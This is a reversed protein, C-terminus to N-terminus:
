KAVPIEITIKTGKGLSSDIWFRGGLSKTVYVAKTLGFGGGLVLKDGANSGREGFGAVREIDDPPIGRGTDQINLKLLQGDNELVAGIRGGPDTYKRSNAILDRVVDQFVLPMYIVNGGASKIEFDVAYDESHQEALNLVIGYNGKSNKEIAAFMSAFNQELESISQEHWRYPEGARDL